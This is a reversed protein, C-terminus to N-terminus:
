HGCLCLYQQPNKHFRIFEFLLKQQKKVSEAM